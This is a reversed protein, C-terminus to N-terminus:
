RGSAPSGAVRSSAGLLGDVSPPFPLADVPLDEPLAVPLPAPCDAGFAAAAPVAGADDFPAPAARV